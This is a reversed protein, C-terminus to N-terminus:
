KINFRYTITGVQILDAKTDQNFLAKQAAKVAAEILQKNTTTSGKAEWVAETVQGNRNVKVKVVVVGEERSPYSPLPLQGGRPSRGSLSYSIGEKGQGIGGVYSKSEPSGKPDGQNGPTNGTGDSKSNTNGLGFANKTSEAIKQQQEAIRRQEEQKQRELEEKRKLEAEEQAKRAKERNEEELKREKEKRKKEEILATQEYDQTLVEEKANNAPEPTTQAPQVPTPEPQPKPQSYQTEIEGMGVPDNGFNILIGEEEPLPLPTVFGFAFMLALVITHFIATGWFGVIKNKKRM